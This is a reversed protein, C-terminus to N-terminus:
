KHDKSKPKNWTEGTVRETEWRKDPTNGKYAYLTQKETEWIIDFEKYKERIAKIQEESKSQHKM